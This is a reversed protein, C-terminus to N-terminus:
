VTTLEANSREMMKEYVIKFDALFKRESQLFHITEM